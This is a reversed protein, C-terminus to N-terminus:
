LFERIVADPNKYYRNIIKQVEYFDFIGRKFLAYLLKTRTQFEKKLYDMSLGYRSSIKELAKM